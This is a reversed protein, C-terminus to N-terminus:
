GGTLGYVRWRRPVLLGLSTGDRALRRQRTALADAGFAGRMLDEWRAQAADDEHLVVEGWVIVHALDEDRAVSVCARPDRELNRKKQRGTLSFVLADDAVGMLVPTVHPGGDRGVTGLHVWRAPEHVAALAAALDTDM